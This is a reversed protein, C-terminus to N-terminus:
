LVSKASKRREVFVEKIKAAVIDFDIKVLTDFPDDYYDARSFYLKNNVFAEISQETVTRYRYLYRPYKMLTQLAKSDNEIYDASLSCLMKWFETRESINM